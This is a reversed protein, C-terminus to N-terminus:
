PRQTTRAASKLQFDGKALGMPLDLYSYQYIMSQLEMSSVPMFGESSGQWGHDGNLIRIEGGQEPM